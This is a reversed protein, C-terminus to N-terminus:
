GGITLIGALESIKVGLLGGVIIIGVIIAVWFLRADKLAIIKEFLTPEKKELLRKLEHFQSTLGIFGAEVKEELSSMRKEIETMRVGMRESDEIVKRFVMVIEGKTITKKNQSLMDVAAKTRECM